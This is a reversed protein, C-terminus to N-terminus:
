VNEPTLSARRSCSAIHSIENRKSIVVIITGVVSALSNIVILIGVVSAPSILVIITGVVSAPPTLVTVAVGSGAEVTVTV